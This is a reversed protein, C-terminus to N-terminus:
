KAIMVVKPLKKNEPKYTKFGLKEYYSILDDHWPITIVPIKLKKAKRIIRKTLIKGANHYNSALDSLSLYKKIKFFKAYEDNSREGYKVFAVVKNKNLILEVIDEKYFKKAENESLNIKFKKKYLKIYQKTYKDSNSDNLEIISLQPYGSIKELANENLYILNISTM